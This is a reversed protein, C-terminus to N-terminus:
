RRRAGHLIRDIAVTDQRVRYVIVYPRVTALERRGTSRQPRGIHPSFTLRCADALRTLMRDAARVSDQSIYAHIAELDQSAADTYVPKM